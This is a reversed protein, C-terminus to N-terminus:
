EYACREPTKYSLLGGQRWDGIALLEGDEARYLEAGGDERFVVELAYSRYPPYEAEVFAPACTHSASSRAAELLFLGSEPAFTGSLEYTVHCEAVGSHHQNSFNYHTETGGAARTAADYDLEGVLYRSEVRYADSHEVPCNRFAASTGPWALLAISAATLRIRGHM